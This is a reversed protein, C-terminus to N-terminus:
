RDEGGTRTRRAPHGRLLDMEQTHQMDRLLRTAEEVVQVASTLAPIVRDMVMNDREIILANLRTVEAELRDARETERKYSSKSFIFLGGAVLGLIGYQALIGLNLPDSAADAVFHLAVYWADLM